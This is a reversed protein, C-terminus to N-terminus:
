SPILRTTFSAYFMQNPDGSRPKYTFFGYKPSVARDYMERLQEKTVFTGSHEEEFAKWDVAPLRGICWMAFNKRMDSQLGRYVQTDALLTTGYHRGRHVVSGLTKNHNMEGLMDACLIMLQPLRKKDLDKAEQVKERQEALIRPLANLNEFTYPHLNPDEGKALMKAEIKQKLEGFAPDLRHSHSFIVTKDMIPFLENAVTLMQSTKGGTTQAVFAISTPTPQFLQARPQAWRNESAAGKVELSHPMKKLVSM